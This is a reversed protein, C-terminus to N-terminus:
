LYCIMPDHTKIWNALRQRKIPSNLENINLSNLENINLAIVSISPSRDNHQKNETNGTTEKDRMEQM